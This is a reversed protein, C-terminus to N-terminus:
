VLIIKKVEQKELGRLVGKSLHNKALHMTGVRRFEGGEPGGDRSRTPQILLFHQYSDGPAAQFRATGILLASVPPELELIANHSECDRTAHGKKCCCSYGDDFPYDLYSIGSDKPGLGEICLALDRAHSLIKLVAERPLVPGSLELRVSDPNKDDTKISLLQTCPGEQIQEIATKSLPIGGASDCWRTGLWTWSPFVARELGGGSSPGGCEPMGCNSCNSSKPVPPHQHFSDERPLDAVSKRSRKKPSRRRCRWSVIDEVIRDKWLGAITERGSARSFADAIGCFAFWQDQHNSLRRETYCQVLWSWDRNLRDLSRSTDTNDTPLFRSWDERKHPCWGGLTDWSGERCELTVNHGFIYLVRSSNLSEQFTWGRQNWPSRSVSKRSGPAKNSLILDSGSDSKWPGRLKCSLPRGHGTRMGSDASDAEVPVITVRAQGYYEMMKQAESMWERKCDQVICLADIWLYQIGLSRTVTIADQLTKPLSALSIENMREDINSATTKATKMASSAGWCYSLAAYVPKRRGPKELKIRDGDMVKVLRLPCSTQKPGPCSQHTHVCSEIATRILKLNNSSLPVFDDSRFVHVEGWRKKSDVHGSPVASGISLEQVEKLPMGSARTRPNGVCYFRLTTKAAGNDGVSAGRPITIASRLLACCPCGSRASKALALLSPARDKFTWDFHHQIPLKADARKPPIGPRIKTTYVSKLASVFTGCLECGEENGIPPGM